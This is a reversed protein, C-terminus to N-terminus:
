SFQHGSLGARKWRPSAQGAAPYAVKSWPGAFWEGKCEEVATCNMTDNFKKEAECKEDPVKKVTEDDFTGCFVKRTQVGSGCKASCQTPAFTINATTQVSAVTNRQDKNKVSIKLCPEVFARHLCM